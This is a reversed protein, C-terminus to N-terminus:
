QEWGTRSSTMILLYKGSTSTSVSVYECLPPQFLGYPSKKNTSYSFSSTAKNTCTDPHFSPSICESCLFGHSSVSLRLTISLALSSSPPEAARSGSPHKIYDLFNTWYSWGETKSFSLLLLSSPPGQRSLWPNEVDTRRMTALRELCGLLTNHSPSDCVCM